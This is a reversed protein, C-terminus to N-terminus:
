FLTNAIGQTNEQCFQTIRQGAKNQVALGFKETVGPTEQSGLKANWVGIIFIADKKPTLELLNQLDRYFWEVEHEEANSNPAYVQTVTISHNSKSIFM